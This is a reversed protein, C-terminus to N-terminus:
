SSTSDDRAQLNGIRRRTATVSTRLRQDLAEDVEGKPERRDAYAHSGHSRLAPGDNEAPLHDLLIAAGQEIAREIASRAAAGDRARLAEILDDYSHRGLRPQPYLYNFCPGLRLWLSGIIELLTPMAAHAYVGFRFAKNLELAARVDGVAKAAQFDRAVAALATLQTEEIREAARESALGEVAKRIDCIEMYRRRSVVPVTFAQAPAVELAGMAVLKLLAERVPTSSAGLQVALDRTVLREGPRLVGAM